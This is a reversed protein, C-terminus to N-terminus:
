GFLGDLWSGKSHIRLRSSWGLCNLESHLLLHGREILWYSPMLVTAYPSTSKWSYFFFVVVIIVDVYKQCLKTFITAFYVFFLKATVKVTTFVSVRFMNFLSTELTPLGSFVGCRLLCFWSLVEVSINADGFRVFCSPLIKWYKYM